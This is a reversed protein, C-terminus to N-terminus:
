ESVQGTVTFSFDDVIIDGGTSMAQWTVKYTAPALEPLDLVIHEGFATSQGISNRPLVMRLREGTRNGSTVELRINTITVEALFSFEMRVPALDLVADHDPVTQALGGIHARALASLLLLAPLSLINILLRTTRVPNHHLM